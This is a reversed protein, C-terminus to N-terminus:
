APCLAQECPFDSMTGCPIHLLHLCAGILKRGLQFNVAVLRNQCSHPSQRSIWRQRLHAPIWHTHCLPFSLFTPVAHLSHPISAIPSHLNIANINCEQRKSGVDVWTLRLTIILGPVNAMFDLVIGNVVYKPRDQFLTAEFMVSAVLSCCIHGVTPLHQIRQSFGLVSTRFDSWLSFCFQLYCKCVSSAVFESKQWSM